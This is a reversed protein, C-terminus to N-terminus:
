PAVGDKANLYEEAAQLAELTEGRHGNSVLISLLINIIHEMGLTEVAKPSMISYLLSEGADTGNQKLTFNESEMYDGEVEILHKEPRFTM